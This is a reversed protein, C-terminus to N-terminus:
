INQHLLFSMRSVQGATAASDVNDASTYNRHEDLRPSMPPFVTHPLNEIPSMLTIAFNQPGHPIPSRHRSHELLLKLCLKHTYYLHSSCLIPNIPKLLVMFIGKQTVTTPM